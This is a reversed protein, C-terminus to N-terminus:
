LKKPGKTKAHAANSAEHAKASHDNALQSHQSADAHEGKEHAEAANRHSKAAEEHHAAAKHHDHKPMTGKMSCELPGHPRRADRAQVRDAQFKCSQKGSRRPDLVRGGMDKAQALVAWRDNLWWYASASNVTHSILESGPM